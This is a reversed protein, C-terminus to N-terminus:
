LDILDNCREYNLNRRAAKPQMGSDPGGGGMKHHIGEWVRYIRLPLSGPFTSSAIFLAMSLGCPTFVGYLPILM